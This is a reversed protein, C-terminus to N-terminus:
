AGLLPQWRNLYLTWPLLRARLVTLNTRTGVNIRRLQLPDAKRLDNIGPLTAFALAFGERALQRVVEDSLGGSPYAFIPLASGIESM